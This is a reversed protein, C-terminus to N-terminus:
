EVISDINALSMMMMMMLDCMLKNKYSNKRVSSIRKESM